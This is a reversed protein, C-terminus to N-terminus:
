FGISEDIETGLHFEDQKYTLQFEKYRRRSFALRLAQKDSVEFVFHMKQWGTLTNIALMGINEPIPLVFKVSVLYNSYDVVGEFIYPVKPTQKYARSLKRFALTVFAPPIDPFEARIHEYLNTSGDDANWYYLNVPKVDKREFVIKSLHNCLENYRVMTESLFPIQREEPCLIVDVKINM